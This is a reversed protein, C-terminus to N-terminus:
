MESRIGMVLHGKADIDFQQQWCAPSAPTRSAPDFAIALQFTKRQYDTVLWYRGAGVNKFEFAGEKGTIATFFPRSNRCCMIGEEWPYIELNVNSLPRSDMGGGSIPTVFSLEGCMRDLHAIKGPAEASTATVAALL